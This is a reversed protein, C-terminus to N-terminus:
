QGTKSRLEYQARKFDEPIGIDIFYSDSRFGFVDFDLLHRELVEQEFSFKGPLQLGTLLDPQLLYIGGNIWGEKQYTKERFAIIRGRDDMRVTGYREFGTLHKLAITLDAQQERHYAHMREMDVEFFTDGNVIAVTEKPPVQQLAALIAGGTGLPEEEVEYCLEIGKYSEQFHGQIMEHKYGVSLVAKELGQSALHDLVYQLFPKGNVMAMPKPIDSVVGQLRTGLGGALIIAQGIM